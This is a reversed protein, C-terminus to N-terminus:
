KLAYVRYITQELKGGAGDGIEYRLSVFGSTAALAPHVISANYRGDSGTLAARKWTGGDDYSVWVKASRAVVLDTGPETQAALRLTFPRGAPAANQGDLDLDWDARLVPVLTWDNGAPRASRFTWATSMERSLPWRARGETVDLELRYTAPDATGVNFLAAAAPAESILEGDRYLRATSKRARGQLAHGEADVFTAYYAWLQDDKRQLPHYRPNSGPRFPAKLWTMARDGGATMTVFGDYLGDTPFSAYIAQSYKTDNATFYRVQPFPFPRGTLFTIVIWSYPRWVGTGIQAAVAPRAAVVVGHQQAACGEVPM